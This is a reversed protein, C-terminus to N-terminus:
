GATTYHAPSEMAGECEVTVGVTTCSTAPDRVQNSLIPEPELAIRLETAGSPSSENTMTPEPEHEAFRLSPPSPEPDPTPSARDDAIDVMMPWGCSVLVWEVFTALAREPVM